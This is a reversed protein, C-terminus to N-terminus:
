HYVFTRCITPAFLNGGRCDSKMLLHAYQCKCTTEKRLVVRVVNIQHKQFHSKESVNGDKNQYLNEEGSKNLYTEKKSLTRM